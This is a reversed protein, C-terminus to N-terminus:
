LEIKIGKRLYTPVDLDEGEYFNRDNKGFYGQQGQEDAFSFERQIKTLVAPKANQYSTCSSVGGSLGAPASAASAGSIDSAGIVCLEVTDSLRKDVVAGMVANEKAGFTDTLTNMLDKVQMLTLDRGGIINVLLSDACRASEPLHLLPCSLLDDIVKRIRGEGSACGLGFLTKGGRPRFSTRLIAFDLPILSQSFLMACCSDIGRCIWEDAQKFAKLVNAAEEAEQILLDNPLSIVADCAARWETLSDLAEKRRRTGEFTFPLTVFAITFAGAKTGMEAIAPGAGSGTGRGLGAIFFILDSDASMAQFVECESKVAKSSLSIDGGSGLGYMMRGGITHREEISTATLAHADTDCVIMDICDRYKLQLRSLIHMGAGGIGVLKVRLVPSVKSSM